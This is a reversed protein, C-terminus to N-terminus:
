RKSRERDAIVELLTVMHETREDIRKMAGNTGNRRFVIGILGLVIVGLGGAIASLEAEM